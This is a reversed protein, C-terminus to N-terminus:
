AKKVCKFNLIEVRSVFTQYYENQLFFFRLFDGLYVYLQVFLDRRECEACPLLSCDFLSNCFRTIFWCILDCARVEDIVKFLQYFHM